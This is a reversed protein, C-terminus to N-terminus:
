RRGGIVFNDIYERYLQYTDDIGISTSMERFADESDTVFYVAHIGETARMEKAFSSFCEEELLIAFGNEPLIMMEPLEEGEPLEPRRGIAGTKLWLLPLIERFQMGLSVRNRDLFGLKFYEANAAFGDSYLMPQDDDDLGYSGDLPTGDDRTGRITFVTRPWTISKCIGHREWEADGPLIGQKRLQAEEKKSLENNTVLLCRRTGGDESNVLNVANLTTGSGAFIDLILSDDETCARIIDAILDVPKPYPFSKGVFINQIQATGKSTYFEKETWMTPIKSGDSKYEGIIVTNNVDEYGLIDIKGQSLKKKIGDSLFQITYRNPSKKHKSPLVRILGKKADEIFSESILRWVCPQGKSTIPWIAVCGEPAEDFSFQFDELEGKYLGQKIREELSLGCSHIEGTKEDVFIPYTQNPRQAQTFTALNMGHFPSSHKGGTFSMPHPKFSSPTVFVLHEHQFNFGGSPKGGSTKITVATVQHSNFIEKCIMMLHHIEQYGISIVVVGKETLLNKVLSLRKSMMNLWKSHAWKDSADVFADNYKWEDTGTNYPPDIYVCDVKGAYLYELLQLAHYNDAEILTHWLSSDPANEIRDIPQLMPFILEGFQAVAVLDEMAYNEIEGTTTRRCFAHEDEVRLVDWVDDIKGSKKAVHMGSRINVGYLPTREVDHDEFVLGFKKNRTLNEVEDALRKRLIPDKVQELLEHIRAMKRKEKQPILAM